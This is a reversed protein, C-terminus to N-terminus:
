CIRFCTFTLCFSIRQSRGFRKKFSLGRLSSTNIAYNVLVAYLNWQFELEVFAKYTCLHLYDKM